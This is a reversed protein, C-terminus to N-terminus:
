DRLWSIERQEPATGMLGDRLDQQAGKVGEAHRHIWATLWAGIYGGGSVTSLYDFRTLLRHRALGQVIGLNFTASRIGGGSLALGCLSAARARVTVGNEDGAEVPEAAM